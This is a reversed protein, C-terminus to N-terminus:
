VSRPARLECGSGVVLRLRSCAQRAKRAKPIAFVNQCWPMSANAKSSSSARWRRTGNMSWLGAREM